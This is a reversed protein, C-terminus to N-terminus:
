GVLLSFKSSIGQGHGDVTAGILHAIRDPIYPKPVFRVGEDIGDPCGRGSTIVV